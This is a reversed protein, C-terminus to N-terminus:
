SPVQGTVEVGVGTDGIVGDGVGVGDGIVGNGAVGVVGTGGVLKVEGFEESSILSVVPSDVVSM